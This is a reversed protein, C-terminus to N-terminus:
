IKAYKNLITINHGSGYEWGLCPKDCKWKRLVKFHKFTAKGEKIFEKDHGQRVVDVYKEIHNDTPAPDIPDIFEYEIYFLNMANGEISKKIHQEQEMMERKKEHAEKIDEIKQKIKNTMECEGFVIMAEEHIKELHKIDTNETITTKTIVDILMEEVISQISLSYDNYNHIIAYQGKTFQEICKHLTKHKTHTPTFQKCCTTGAYIYNNTIPNYLIKAIKILRQCICQFKNNDDECKVCGLYICWEKKAVNPDQSYSLALLGKTFQYKRDETQQEEEM